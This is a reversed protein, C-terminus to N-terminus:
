HNPTGRMTRRIRHELGSNYHVGYRLVWRPTKATAFEMILNCIDKPVKHNDAMLLERFVLCEDIWGTIGAKYFYVPDPREDTIDWSPIMPVAVPLSATGRQRKRELRQLLTETTM